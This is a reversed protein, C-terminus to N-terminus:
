YKRMIVKPMINVSASFDYIAEAFSHCGISIPTIPRGPEGMKEPLSHDIWYVDQNNGTSVM